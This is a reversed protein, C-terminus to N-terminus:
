QSDATAKPDKVDLWGLADAMSTFVGVYGGRNKAVTEGFRGPDIYPENGVIAMRIKGGYTLYLESLYKGMTFRDMVTPPAGTLDLGEFLVANLHHNEAIEFAKAYAALTSDIEYSGSCHIVAHDPHVAHSTKITM